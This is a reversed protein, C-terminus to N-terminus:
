RKKRQMAGTGGGKRIGGTAQMGPPVFNLIEPKFGVANQGYTTTHYGYKHLYELSLAFKENTLHIYEFIILTPSLEELPLSQVIKICAFGHM